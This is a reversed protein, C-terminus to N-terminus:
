PARAEIRGALQDGCETLSALGDTGFPISALLEIAFMEALERAANGEFLRETAGCNPCKRGSMNEVVGLIDLDQDRAARLAREVSSQSEPSPLTVAVLEGRGSTLALLDDVRAGGPPLDILLYDLAGWRVDALLERLVGAERTGRSIFQDPTQSKWRIPQGDDLLLASSVVKIGNTGEPPDIGDGDAKFSGTVRLLSAMTPSMLDADLVGVAKGRVAFSDALLATVFSKGVGGKGSSLVVVRRVPGLRLEISKRQAQVQALLESADAGAVDHYSPLKM